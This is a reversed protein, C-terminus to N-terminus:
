DPWEYQPDGYFYFADHTDEDIRNGFRKLLRMFYLRHSKFTSDWQVHTMPMHIRRTLPRM